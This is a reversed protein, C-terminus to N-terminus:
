RTLGKLITNITERYTTIDHKALAVFSLEKIHDWARNQERLQSTVKRYGTILRQYDEWSITVTEPTPEKM